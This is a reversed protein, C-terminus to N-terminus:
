PRTRPLPHPHPCHDKKIRSSILKHHYYEYTEQLTKNLLERLTRSKQEEGPQAMRTVIEEELRLEHIIKAIKQDRPSDM